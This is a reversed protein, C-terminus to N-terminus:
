FFIFEPPASCNLQNCIENITKLIFPSRVLFHEKYIETFDLNKRGALPHTRPLIACLVDQCILSCDCYRLNDSFKHGIVFDVREELLEALSLDPDSKPILSVLIDPYKEAFHSNKIRLEINLFTLSQVMCSIKKRTSYQAMQLMANKFKPEIEKLADLFIKGAPTLSVSRKERNFLKTGLEDELRSISKSVSSQSINHNESVNWFTQGSAIEIFYEIATTDM